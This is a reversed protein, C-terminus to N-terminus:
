CNLTLKGQVAPKIHLAKEGHHDTETGDCGRCHGGLLDTKLQTFELSGDRDIFEGVVRGPFWRSGREGVDKAQELGGFLLSGRERWGSWWCEV